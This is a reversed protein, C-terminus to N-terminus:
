LKETGKTPGRPASEDGSGTVREDHSVRPAGDSNFVEAVDRREEGPKAFVDETVSIANITRMIEEVATSERAEELLKLRLCNLKSALRVKAQGFREIEIRRERLRQGNLILDRMLTRLEQKEEDKGPRGLQNSLETIRSEIKPLEDDLLQQVEEVRDREQFIQERASEIQGLYTQMGRKRLLAVLPIYEERVIGLDRWGRGTRWKQWALFAGLLLLIAVPAVAWAPMGACFALSGLLFDRALDFTGGITTALISLAFRSLVALGVLGVLTVGAFGLFCGSCPSMPLRKM